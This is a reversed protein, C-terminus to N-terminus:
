DILKPRVTQLFKFRHLLVSEYSRNKSLIEQFRDKPHKNIEHGCQHCHPKDKSVSILCNPCIMMVM